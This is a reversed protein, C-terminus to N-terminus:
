TVIEPERMAQGHLTREVGDIRVVVEVDYTEGWGLRAGSAYWDPATTDYTVDLTESPAITQDWSAYGDDAFVRANRTSLAGVLHSESDVVRVSVIEFPVEEGEAGAVLHIQLSSQTCWGGCSDSDEACDGAFAGGPEGQTACDQALTVSSLTAEVSLSETQHTALCATLPLASLALATFLVRHSMSRRWNCATHGRSV